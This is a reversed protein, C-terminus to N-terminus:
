GKKFRVRNASLNVIICRIYDNSRSRYKSPSHGELITCIDVGKGLVRFKQGGTTCTWGSVLRVPDPGPQITSNDPAGVSHDEKKERRYVPLACFFSSVAVFSHLGDRHAHKTPTGHPRTRSFARRTATHVCTVFNAKAPLDVRSM